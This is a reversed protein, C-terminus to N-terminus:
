SNGAKPMSVYKRNTSAKASIEELFFLPLRSQPYNGRRIKMGCGNSNQIKLLSRKEAAGPEEPKGAWSGVTEPLSKALRSPKMGPSEPFALVIGAFVAVILSLIVLRRKM